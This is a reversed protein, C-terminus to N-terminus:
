WPSSALAELAQNLEGLSQSCLWSFFAPLNQHREKTVNKNMNLHFAVLLFIFLYIFLIGTERKRSANGWPCEPLKVFYYSLIFAAPGLGPQLQARHPFHQPAVPGWLSYSFGAALSTNAAKIGWNGGREHSM